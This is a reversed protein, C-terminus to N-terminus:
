KWFDPLTSQKSLFTIFLARIVVQGIISPKNTIM